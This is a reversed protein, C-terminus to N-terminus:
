IVGKGKYILVNDPLTILLPEVTEVSLGGRGIAPYPLHFVWNSHMNAIEKLQKISSKVLEIDAPKSWHHKVPFVAIVGNSSNIGIHVKNPNSKVLYGFYEPAGTYVDAFAKANGAGMVLDGNSKLTTNTTCMYCNREQIDVPYTLLSHILKMLLNRM